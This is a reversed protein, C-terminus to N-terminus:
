MLKDLIIGTGESTNSIVAKKICLAKRAKQFMHSFNQKQILM